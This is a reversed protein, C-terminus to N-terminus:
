DHLSLSPLAFLRQCFNWNTNIKLRKNRSKLVPVFCAEVIQDNGRNLRLMERPLVRYSGAEHM